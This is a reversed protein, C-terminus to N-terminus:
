TPLAIKEVTITKMLKDCAIHSIYDLHIEIPSIYWKKENVIICEGIEILNLPTSLGCGDAKVVSEKITWHRFFERNSNDANQIASLVSPSFQEEFDKIDIEVIKEVDVGLRCESGLACVVFEGSHSINFDLAEDLSPRGLVSTRISNLKARTYGFRELSMMLLYRGIM